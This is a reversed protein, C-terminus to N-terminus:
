FSFIVRVFHPRIYAISYLGLYPFYVIIMCLLRVQWIYYDLLVWSHWEMPVSLVGCFYPKGHALKEKRQLQLRPQQHLDLQLM